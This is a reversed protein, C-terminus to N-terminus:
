TAPNPASVPLSGSVGPRLRVSSSKGIHLPAPRLQPIRGPDQRRRKRGSIRVQVTGADRDRRRGHRLLDEKSRTILSKPKIHEPLEEFYLKDIFAHSLTYSDNLVLVGQQQALRGFAIGAQEAWHRGAAEETPNNRLFMVDIGSVKVEKLKLSEDQIKALFDENKKAKFGKPIKKCYISVPANSHFNFDGVETVYLEHGKEHAKKMLVLSTGCGETKFDSIVFCIKM